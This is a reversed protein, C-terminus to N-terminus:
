PACEADNDLDVPMLWPTLRTRAENNYGSIKQRLYPKGKRGYIGSTAGGIHAVLKKVVAEDVIGEVAAKFIPAELVERM